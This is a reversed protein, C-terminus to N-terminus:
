LSVDLWNHRVDGTNLLVDGEMSVGTFPAFVITRGLFYNVLLNYM